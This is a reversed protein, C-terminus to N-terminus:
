NLSYEEWISLTAICGISAQFGSFNKFTRSRRVKLFKEPSCILAKRQLPMNLIIVAFELISCLKMKIILLGLVWITTNGAIPLSV